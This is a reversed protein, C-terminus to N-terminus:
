LWGAMLMGVVVLVITGAALILMMSRDKGWQSSSSVPKAVRRVRRTVSKKTTKRVTKKKM